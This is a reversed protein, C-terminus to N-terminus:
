VRTAAERSPMPPMDLSAVVLRAAALDLGVVLRAAAEPSVDPAHMTDTAASEAPGSARDLMALLRDYTDGVLHEPLSHAKCDAIGVPRLGRLCWRLTRSRGLRRRLAKLPADSDHPGDTTLQADRIHRAHAAADEWGALALLKAINDWRWAPALSGLGPYATAGVTAGDAAPGSDNLEDAPSDGGPDSDLDDLNDVRHGEAETIVDGQLACRLVLGAPWHPLVPGLRLHLVDMELGDRDEGGEALPIGDPAMVMGGHDMGGHDMDGHDMDGHDTGGHDMDQHGDSSSDVNPATPRSRADDKQRDGNSIDEVAVDLATPLGAIDLLDVRARPGPLQEWLREVVERLQPGPAGCVALLDANAPSLAPRWGRELMVQELRVRTVWAGPVEVVLVHARRVAYRSLLEDLGM